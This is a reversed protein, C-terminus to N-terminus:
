PQALLFDGRDYEETQMLCNPSKPTKAFTPAIDYNGSGPWGGQVDSYGVSCNADAVIIQYGRDAKNGWIISKTIETNSGQHTSVAGGGFKACNAAFTSKLINLKSQGCIFFAGGESAAANGAFICNTSIVVQKNRILIAGGDAAKAFNCAIFCDSLSLKGNESFIAGGDNKSLNYKLICDELQTSSNLERIAGGAGYSYRSAINSIFLCGKIDVFSEENFIAGGHSSESQSGMSTNNLFRCANIGARTKFNSLAGGCSVTSNESFISENIQISTNSSYVAGGSSISNNDAFLCNQITINESYFNYIAGGNFASNGSFSCDIINSMAADKNYIAGGGTGKPSLAINDEFTCGSLTIASNLNYMAGGFIASNKVFTCNCISPSSKENYIGGGYSSHEGSLSNANGGTIRFGDLIVTNNLNNNAPIFIVHFVDNDDTICNLNLDGSLVSIHTKWRRQKLKRENGKFGGYIAVGNKLAFAKCRDNSGRYKKEPLYTGAKVWIQDGQYSHDLAFQLSKYADGWSQGTSSRKKCSADVFIIKARTCSSFFFLIVFVKIFTAM